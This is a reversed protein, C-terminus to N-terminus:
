VFLVFRRCGTPGRIRHVWPAGPVPMRVEASSFGPTITQKPLTHPCGEPFGGGRRPVPSKALPDRGLLRTLHLPTLLGWASGPSFVDTRHFSPHEGRQPKYALSEGWLTRCLSLDGPPRLSAFQSPLVEWICINM